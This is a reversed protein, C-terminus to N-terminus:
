IVRFNPEKEVVRIKGYMRMMITDFFDPSRGINAKIEDKGVLCKKGDKDMDKEKIQGFEEMILEKIDPDITKGDIGVLGKEMM